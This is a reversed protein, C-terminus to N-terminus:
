LRLEALQWTQLCCRLVAVQVAVRLLQNGELFTALLGGSLQHAHRGGPAAQQSHPRVVRVGFQTPSACYNRSM